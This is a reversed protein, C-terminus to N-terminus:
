KEIINRNIEFKPLNSNNDQGKEKKIKKTLHPHYFISNSAIKDCKSTVTLPLLTTNDGIETGPAICCNDLVEVSDGIVIGKITLNKDWLQNAFLARGLYTNKGVDLYEKAIFTNEIITDKGFHCNGIFNFAPKILWPFPSKQIKWKIYRLIFSRKFYNVFDKNKDDWHFIGERAHNICKIKRYFVKSILIVSFINTLLLLILLLPTILFIIITHSDLFAHLLNRNDLFYPFYYEYCYFLITLLPICNSVFYIIGFSFLNFGLNKVFKAESKNSIPNTRIQSNKRIEMSKNDYFSDTSNSGLKKLPNGSYISNPELNQNIETACMTGLVTNSGIYTGPAIFSNSGILVNDGIKIKRLILHGRLIIGSKISSGSGLSVNSGLEIFELDINGSSINNSFNTKIGFLKLVLNDIVSSPIFSILWIPWKKIVARLSWFYYDKDQIARRFTGERPKHFSCVILLLLKSLCLSTGILISYGICVQFPLLVLLLSLKNHVFRWFLYSEIQLPLVSGWIIFFHIVLFKKSVLTNTTHLGCKVSVPTSM